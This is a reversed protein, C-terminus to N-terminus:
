GNAPAFRRRSHSSRTKIMWFIMAGVVALEPLFWVPSGRWSAPFVRQQGLFFSFSTILLAACVRWVHRAIRAPGVLGGRVRVRIDQAVAFAALSAFVFFIAPGDGDIGSRSAVAQLGWTVNLIVAILAVATACLDLRRRTVTPPKLTLFATAALYATFMGPLVSSRQPLMPAVVAGIGGMIMIAIVFIVGSRRHPWKGKRATLATAGSALGVVGAGIHTYLVARAAVQLAPPAGHALHVIMAPEDGPGVVM